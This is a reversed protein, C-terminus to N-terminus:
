LMSLSRSIGVPEEGKQDLEVPVEPEIVPPCRSPDESTLAPGPPQQQEPSEELPVCLSSTRLYLGM